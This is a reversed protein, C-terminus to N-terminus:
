CRAACRFKMNRRRCVAGIRDVKAQCQAIANDLENTVLLGAKAAQQPFAASYVTTKADKAMNETRSAEGTTTTTKKSSSFQAILSFMDVPM